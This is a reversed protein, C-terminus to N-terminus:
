KRLSSSLEDIFPQAAKEPTTREFLIDSTYRSLIDLITSGGAPTIPPAPRVADAISDTFDIAAKDTASLKPGIAERIKTNAPIGRETLMVDGAAQSNTLYNLFKEAAKQHKTRSSVSWFMSAKYYAGPEKAQSEGPLRLLKLPQGSAASYATLQTNFSGSFGMQNKAIATQNLSATANEMIVSPKAAAGSKSLDQINKWFSVLTEPKIVVKGSEDYLRDGQQRAWIYLDQDSYGVGVGTAGAGSQSVQQGIKKYDDWSWTSDDPMAVGAKELVAPNAIICYTAVGTVLGVLKGDVEGSKLTDGEISSTDLNLKKLDLLAGRDGYERVYKEDMQIIDPADNAAVQTALKDWYGNWDGYEGVVTINPNEANFADIVKQTAKQRADGGWWSFRITVPGTEEAAPNAGAGCGTLLLASAAATASWQLLKRRTPQTKM